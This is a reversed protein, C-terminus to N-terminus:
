VISYETAEATKWSVGLGDLLMKREEKLKGASELKIQTRMWEGLPYGDETKYLVPIKMTPFSARNELAKKYGAQWRVDNANDIQVGLGRLLNEREKSLKGNRYKERQNSLWYGVKLGQGDTYDHKPPKGGSHEMYAELSDFYQPWTDEKETSRNWDVPLSDLKERKWQPLPRKSLGSYSRRQNDLWRALSVGDPSKASRSIADISGHRSFYDAVASFTRRWLLDSKNEFKVGIDRLLAAQEGNLTRYRETKSVHRQVIRYLWEGLRVGDPTVYDKPPPGGLKQFYQKCLAYKEMWQFESVDWVMHIEELRRTKDNSLTGKRYAARNTAIWEGLKFGDETAYHGQVDLNGRKRCYEAAHCYGKEWQDELPSWQFGIKNLKQIRDKTLIGHSKGHYIKRQLVCWYGLAIGDPTRYTSPPSAHHREKKFALLRHFMEDWSSSLINDLHGFLARCDAVEDLITFSEVAIKNGEGHDRFAKVTDAMEQQLSEISYLNYVNAVIDLILPSKQKSASLARGIQQKYIIPSVTPRFLIVGSIGEVHVGENLMNIAILVKLHSSEDTKFAAFAKSTEPDDSYASYIHPDADVGHFWERCKEKVTQMSEVNPVFLIYKGNKEEMHKQFIVDLGDAQEIARRIKQLYEEAKVRVAKNKTRRLKAEYRKIDKAYSFVSIVYKPPALIGRVVAEGLSMESAVCGDFLEDAMDRRNDLYRINTASLGLVPTSPYAALLRQVGQGWYEAGCRHFEDLIIYDPRLGAIEEASLIMMKTYTLFTINKPVKSGTAALNETQTKFIYDSPSLWVIHKKPNDECLKFAIFSKGTGTPHIVATKGTEALMAIASAYAAQNHPYLSIAM